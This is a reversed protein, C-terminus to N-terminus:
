PAQHRFVLDEPDPRQADHDLVAGLRRALGISRHNDPTIYSVLTTLKRVGFAWARMAIAAETAIGRGEADQYLLWGLEHEPFLPGHNIGVQGVCLGTSKEEIMLAGVGFLSWQATDACFMGWAGALSYPGGMHIARESMLMSRYEPWDAISIERLILRDTELRPIASTM